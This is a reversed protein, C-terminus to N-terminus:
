GIRAKGRARIRFRVRLGYCGMGESCGLLGMVRARFM